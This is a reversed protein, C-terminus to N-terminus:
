CGNKCWATFKRGQTQLAATTRSLLSSAIALGQEPINDGNQENKEAREVSNLIHAACSQNIASETVQDGSYCQKLRAHINARVAIKKTQKAHQSTEADNSSSTQGHSQNGIQSEGLHPGECSHGNQVDNSM